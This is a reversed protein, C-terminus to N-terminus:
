LFGFAASIAAQRGHSSASIATRRGLTTTQRPAVAARRQEPAIKADGLM